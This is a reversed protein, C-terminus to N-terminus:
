THTQMCCRFGQVRRLAGRRYLLYICIGAVLVVVIVVLTVIVATHNYGDSTTKQDETIVISVTINAVKATGNRSAFVIYDGTMTEDNPINLSGNSYMTYNTSEKVWIYYCPPNCDASATIPPPSKDIVHYETKRPSLVISDPGWNVLIKIKNSGGSALGMEDTVECTLISGNDKRLVRHIWFKNEITEFRTDNVSNGDIKWTTTLRRSPFSTSQSLCEFRVNDNEEIETLVSVSIIDPKSPPGSIFVTHCYISQSAKIYYTGGDSARVNILSIKSNNEHRDVVPRRKINIEDDYWTDHQPYIVMFPKYIQNNSRYVWIDHYNEEVPVTLTVNEGIRTHHHQSTECDYYGIYIEILNNAFFLCYIVRLSVM